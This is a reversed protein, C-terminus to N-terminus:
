RFSTFLNNGLTYLFGLWDRQLTNAGAVVAGAVILGVGMTVDRSAVTGLVAYEMGLTFAANTRRIALFMPVNVLQLGYRRAAPCALLPAGHVRV